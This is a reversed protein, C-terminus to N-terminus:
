ARVEQWFLVNEAPVYTDGEIPQSVNDAVVVAARALRYFQGPREVLIGDLSETADKLHVRVKRKRWFM